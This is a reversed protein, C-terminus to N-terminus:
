ELEYRLLAHIKNAGADKFVGQSLQFGLFKFASVVSVFDARQRDVLMWATACGLSEAIELLSLLSQKGSPSTTNPARIYFSGGDQTLFACWQADTAAVGSTIVEGSEVM